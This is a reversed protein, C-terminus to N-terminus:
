CELLQVLQHTNKKKAPGKEILKTDKGQPGKGQNYEGNCRKLVQGKHPPSIPMSLRLTFQPEKLTEEPRRERPQM